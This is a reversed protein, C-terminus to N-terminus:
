SSKRKRKKKRKMCMMVNDVDCAYLSMINSKSSASMCLLEGLPFLHLLRLPRPLRDRPLLLRLVPPLDVGLSVGFSRFDLQLDIFLASGGIGTLPTRQDHPDHVRRPTRGDLSSLNAAIGFRTSVANPLM